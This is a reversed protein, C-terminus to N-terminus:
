GWDPQRNLVTRSPGFPIKIFLEGSKTEEIRGAKKDWGIEDRKSGRSM